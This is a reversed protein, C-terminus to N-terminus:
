FLKEKRVQKFYIMAIIKGVVAVGLIIYATINFNLDMSAYGSDAKFFPDIINFILLTSLVAVITNTYARNCAEAHKWSIKETFAKMISLICNIFSSVVIGLPILAALTFFSGDATKKFVRV